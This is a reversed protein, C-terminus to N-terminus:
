LYKNIKKVMDSNNTDPSFHTIYNGKKDMLYVITTHDVSYGGHDHGDHHNHPKTNEKKTDMIKKSFIKYKTKVSKIQEKTGTLGIIKSDFNTLYKKLKAVTDREPDVTIFIPVLQNKKDIQDIIIGINNLTNPCFDPCNTFGFFVLRHYGKFSNNTIKQGLHNTLEFDGGIQTHSKNNHYKYFFLIVLTLSFIILLNIKKKLFM